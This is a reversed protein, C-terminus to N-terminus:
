DRVYNVTYEGVACGDTSVALITFGVGPVILGPAAVVPALELEDLARGSGPTVTVSIKSGASVTADSVLVTAADTRPWSGFDVTAQGTVM